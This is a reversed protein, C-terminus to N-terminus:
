FVVVDGGCSDVVDGIDVVMNGGCDVVGCSGWGAGIVIDVDLVGGGSGFDVSWGGRVVGGACVVICEGDVVVGGGGTVGAVVGCSSAGWKGVSGAACLVSLLLLVMVRVTFM